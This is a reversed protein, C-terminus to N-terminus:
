ESARRLGRGGMCVGAPTGNTDAREEELRCPDRPCRQETGTGWRRGDPEADGGDWRLLCSAERAVAAEAEAATAAEAM